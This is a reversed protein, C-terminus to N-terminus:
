NWGQEVKNSIIQIQESNYANIKMTSHEYNSNKNNLIFEDNRRYGVFILKTGREFWSPNVYKVKDIYSVDKNNYYIFQGKSYRVTVVGDQTLAYVLHKKKDKDVVTGAITYTKFLPYKHGGRGTRFKEVDPKEPLTSFQVLDIYKDIPMLDLEHKDHYFALAEMEWSEVNGM